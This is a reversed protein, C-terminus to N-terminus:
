GERRCCRNGHGSAMPSSTGTTSHASRTTRLPASGSTTVSTLWVVADSDPRPLSGLRREPLVPLVSTPPSPPLSSRPPLHRGPLFAVGSPCSMKGQAIWRSLQVRIAERQDDSRRSSPPPPDFYPLTAVLGVLAAFNMIHFIVYKDIYRRLLQRFRVVALAERDHDPSTQFDVRSPSPGGRGCRADPDLRRQFALTSAPAPSGCFSAGSSAPRPGLSSAGLSSERTRPFSSPSRARRCSLKGPSQDLRTWPVVKAHAREQPETGGYTHRDLTRGPRPRRGRRLRALRRVHRRGRHGGAKAEVALWSDGRDAM